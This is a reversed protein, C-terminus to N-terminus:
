HHTITIPQDNKPITVTLVLVGKSLRSTAASTCLDTDLTIYKEFHNTESIKGRSTDQIGSLKMIRGAGEVQFFDVKVKLNETEV